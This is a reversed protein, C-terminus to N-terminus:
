QKRFVCFRPCGFTGAKAAEIGRWMGGMRAIHRGYVIICRNFPFHLVCKVILLVGVVFKLQLIEGNTTYHEYQPSTDSHNLSGTKFVPSTALCRPNSDWGRRWKIRLFWIASFRKVFNLAM